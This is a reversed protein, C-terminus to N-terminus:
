KGGEEVNGFLINYIIEGAVRYKEEDDKMLRKAILGINLITDNFIFNGEDIQKKYENYRRDYLEYDFEYLHNGDDKEEKLKLINAQELEKNM